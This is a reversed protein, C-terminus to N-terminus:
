RGCMFHLSLSFTGLRDCHQNPIFYEKQKLLESVYTHTSVFRWISTTKWYRYSWYMMAGHYKCHKHLHVWPSHQRQHMDVPWKCHIQYQSQCLVNKGLIPFAAWFHKFYVQIPVGIRKPLYPLLHYSFLKKLILVIREVQFYHLFAPLRHGILDGEKPIDARMNSISFFALWTLGVCACLVKTCTLIYICAIHKDHFYWPQPFGSM